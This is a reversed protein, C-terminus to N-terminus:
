TRMISSTRVFHTTNPAVNLILPLFNGCFKGLVQEFRVLSAVVAHLIESCKQPFM